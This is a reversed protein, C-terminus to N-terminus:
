GSFYQTWLRRSMDGSKLLSIRTYIGDCDTAQQAGAGSIDAGAQFERFKTHKGTKVISLTSRDSTNTCQSSRGYQFLHENPIEPITELRSSRRMRIKDWTEESVLRRLYSPPGTAGRSHHVALVLVELMVSLSTVAMCFVLYIVSFNFCM